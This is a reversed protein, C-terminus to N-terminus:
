NLTPAAPVGEPVPDPDPDPDSPKYATLTVTTGPDVDDGVGPASRVVIGPEAPKIQGPLVIVETTSTVEAALGIKELEKIALEESLGVVPPVKVGTSIVLDVATDRDVLTMAPPRSRIVADKKVIQSSEDIRVGFRLGVRYLIAEASPLDQGALDPVEIPAPGSSVVLAISSGPSAQQGAVPESSIVLGEAIESESRTVSGVTLGDDRLESRADAEPVGVVDPVVVLDPGSSVVLDVASDAEVSTGAVPRSELIIGAEISPDARRTTQGVRLPVPALAAPAEELSRGVVDPVLVHPDTAIGRMQVSPAAATGMVALTLTGSHEGALTPAFAVSIACSAGPDLTRGECATDDIRFQRDGDGASMSGLQLPVAAQNTATVLQPPSVDDVDREGFDLRDPSLTPPPVAIGTGTLGATAGGPVDVVLQAARRGSGTPTFVVGIACDSGTALATTCTNTTVTFGDSGTISVVATLATGGRNALTIRQEASATGVEQDGFEVTRPVIEAIGPEPPATGSGRLPVVTDAVSQGPVTLLATRSGVEVPAFRVTVACDAGPVLAAGSCSDPDIVYDAAGLGDITIAGVTVSGGAAPSLRLLRPASSTNLLQDGFTLSTPAIVPGTEDAGASAGALSVTPDKNLERIDFTLDAERSGVALATFAIEATCSAGAAVEGACTSEIVAFDQVDRGSTSVSDVTVGVRGVNELTVSQQEGPRNLMQAAYRLATTSLEVKPSFQSVGIFALSGLLPIVVVAAKASMPLRSLARGTGTHVTSRDQQDTVVPPPADLISLNHRTAEAGAVDGLSNRIELAGTLHENSAHIEGVCLERTGIQHLAMAEAARDGIARAADLTTHLVDRWADWRGALAYAAALLAGLVLVARWRGRTHADTYVTRLSDLRPGPPVRTGRHRAAWGTFHEGIEERRQELDAATEDVSIGYALTYMTTPGAAPSSAHVLGRSVWPALREAINALGSVAGLQDADLALGPMAALLGILRVDEPDRPHLASPGSRMEAAAFDALPGVAERAGAGLQLLRAPVGRALGNLADVAALEDPHPPRGLARVLLQVAEESPLGRLQIPRIDARRRAETTVAIRCGPLADGLERLQEDTLEVDDLLITARVHQLRRLVDSRGPRYPVDCTYFVGFLVQLLDDASLGPTPLFVVGDDDPELHAIHRLLTSRGAGPPGSVEVPRGAALEALATETEDQRDLMPEPRAPLVRVPHPAEVVTPVYGPALVQVTDGHSHNIQLQVSNDGFALQGRLDGSISVTTHVAGEDPVPEDLIAM